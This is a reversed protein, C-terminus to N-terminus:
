DPLWCRAYSLLAEGQLFGDKEVGAKLMDGLKHTASLDSLHMEIADRWHRSRNEVRTVALTNRLSIIDSCIVPVGCAGFELLRVPSLNRNWPTDAMPLLALDLNLSALKSAFREPTVAAHFECVLPRLSPPCYGFFIWEVRDAFQAILKHIIELDAVNRADGVWGIRPKQGAHRLSTLMGWESPALRTPLVRIDPHWGACSEAMVDSAVVLRDVGAVTVRLAGSIDQPYHERASANAALAPLYDDLDFVTMVGTIKRNRQLWETMFPMIQRQLIVSAPNFRALDVYQRAHHSIIGNVLGADRLTTFTATLRQHGNVHKDLVFPMVLPQPRWHLPQWLAPDDLVLEFGGNDLSLNPNYAPDNAILPLWKQYMVDQEAMFRQRKKEQVTKDVHKQSVSGEHMVVAHPTWVTLYGAQRAKLCLDVDNYSVTFNVEDLGGVEEYLSKRILLCAATVVNYNQDVQLRQMYGPRDHESDIFPHDAPGRLGLVVGAHQVRGTPYLLKAGVIGVEPRLGHNLLHDLWDSSIIATDNNLLVLYEGRAERAAMNNIASYNFPHPYRLVRIRNPDIASVGELWQLAEPTESNNDVILLEYNPYRTKELLSTVCPILVALQDKTPIIISVLPQQGHHYRLAYLGNQPAEVVGNPYGRHHLHQTLIAVEEPHTALLPPHATVFPEPLHGAFQIGKHEILRTIMEFQWATPYQPNFGGLALLADIRFIWHRAMEAPCSLLLDLNFDPRLATGVIQDDAQYIEDAYIADCGAASDLALDFTLLGSNILTEGAQLFLFWDGPYRALIENIVSVREHAPAVVTKVELGSADSCLVVPDIKLGYGTYSKLSELTLAVDDPSPVPNDIIVRLTQQTGRSLQYAEALGQQQTTLHHSTLWQRIQWTRYDKESQQLSVYVGHLLNEQQVNEPDNMPAVRVWQNQEKDGKYWGLERIAQPMRTYTRNVLDRFQETKALQSSQSETVRFASLTDAIFALNGAHLLKVFVAMDGLFPMSEGRLLFLDKGFSALDERYCLVVSPEGVFNFLYDAFFALADAGNLIVDGEFPYATAGIDILPKGEADIRQRRSSALRNEPSSELAGVLRSVCDTFLIDDDYLFKIYKGRALHVGRLVNGEENLRVENKYYRVPLSSSAAYRESIIRISDDRSDDCIVIEIEPWSQNLASLLATEFFVPNYAPIVISVLAHEKMM